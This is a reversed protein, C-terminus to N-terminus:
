EVRKAQQPDFKQPQKQIHVNIGFHDSDFAPLRQWDYLTLSPKALIHDIPIQLLPCTFQVPWTPVPYPTPRQYRLGSNELLRKFFPSYPTINWDGAMIVYPSTEASIKQAISELEINRQLWKLHDMPPLAHLGYLVLPQDLNPISIESRITYNVFYPGPIEIIQHDTIPHRSLIIMGFAGRYLKTVGYPYKDKIGDTMNVLSQNAEQLIVIDPSLNLIEEKLEEHNQRSVLRNFHMISLSSQDDAANATPQYPELIMALTMIMVASCAILSIKRKTLLFFVALITAGIFFQLIMNRLLDGIWWYPSLFSILFGLLMLVLCARAIEHLTEILYQRKLRYTM